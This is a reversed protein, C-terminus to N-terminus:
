FTLPQSPGGTGLAQSQSSVSQSVFDALKALKQPTADGADVFQDIHAERVFTELANKVEDAWSDGTVSPDHLGVVITLVSELKESQRASKVSNAIDAPTRSRSANDAGDTVMIVIANVDYDNGVLQEGYQLTADISSGTADFLATCGGPHLKPYNSPEIDELLMFGHLEHVEEDFTIVRVLLNDKRPSKKCAEIVKKLTVLLEDAFPAVSGTVDIGVTVLTYEAAGLDGPKIASFSFNGKGALTHTDLKKSKDFDPM